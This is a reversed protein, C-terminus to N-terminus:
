CMLSRQQSRKLIIEGTVVNAEGRGPMGLEVHRIDRALNKFSRRDSTTAAYTVMRGSEHRLKGHATGSEIRWKGTSVAANVIKAIEPSKTKTVM